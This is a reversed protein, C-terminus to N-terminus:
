WQRIRCEWGEPTSTIGYGLRGMLRWSTRWALCLLSWTRPFRQRGQMWEPEDGLPAYMLENILVSGRAPGIAVSVSSTDNSPNGDLAFAIGARFRYGGVALPQHTAILLASDGTLLTPGPLAAFEQFGSGAAAYSFHVVYDGASVAGQNTVVATCSLEDLNTPLQPSVVLSTLALDYSASASVTIDDLRLVGTNNTSDPLLLWQIRVSSHGDFGKGKLDVTRKLYTSPTSATDFQALLTSFITDDISARVQLHYSLATSSRREYFVLSGALKDTFDLAPSTLFKTSRNGTIGV